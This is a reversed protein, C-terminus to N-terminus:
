GSCVGDVFRRCRCRIRDSLLAFLDLPAPYGPVRTFFWLAATFYWAFATVRLTRLFGNALLLPFSPLYPLCFHAPLCLVFTHSSSLCLPLPLPLPLCYPPVPASTTTIPPCLPRAVHGKV